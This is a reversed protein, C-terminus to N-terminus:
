IVLNEAMTLLVDLACKDLSKLRARQQMGSHIISSDVKLLALLPQLRRITDISSV